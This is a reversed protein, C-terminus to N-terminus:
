KEKVEKDVRVLRPGSVKVAASKGSTCDGAEM